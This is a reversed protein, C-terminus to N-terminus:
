NVRKIPKGDFYVKDGSIKCTVTHTEDKVNVTATLDAGSATWTGTLTDTGLMRRAIPRFTAPVTAVAQGGPNLTITVAVPLDPTRVEWASGTLNATNLLPPENPVAPAGGSESAAEGGGGGQQNVVDMVVPLGLIVAAVVCVGIIANKNM